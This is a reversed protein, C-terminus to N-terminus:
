AQQKGKIADRLKKGSKELGKLFKRLPSNKRNAWKTEVARIRPGLDNQWTLILCSEGKQEYPMEADPYYKRIFDLWKEGPWVTCHANEGNPLITRALRTSIRIYARDSLEKFHGIVADLDKEPIHELVDTNILFDYRAAPIETLGEVAPDYRDYTMGPKALITYLQSQGCGYEIISAPRSDDICLRLSAFASRATRGYKTSKHLQQYQEILKDDTIM